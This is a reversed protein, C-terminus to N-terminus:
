CPLLYPSRRIYTVQEPDLVQNRATRREDHGSRMLNNPADSHNLHDGLLVHGVEHALTWPDAHSGLYVAPRHQPHAACGVTEFPSPRGFPDAFGKLLFATISAFDQVGFRNYLEDREDNGINPLCFTEQVGLRERDTVTMQVTAMSAIQLHIGHPGYIQQAFRISLSLNFEVDHVRRFHVRLVRDCRSGFPDISPM